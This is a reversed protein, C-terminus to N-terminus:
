PSCLNSRKAKLGFAERQIKRVFEDSVEISEDRLLCNRVLAPQLDRYRTHILETIRFKQVEM